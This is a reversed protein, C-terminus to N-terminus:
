FPKKDSAARRPIYFTFPVGGGPEHYFNQDAPRAKQPVSLQPSCQSGQASVHEAQATEASAEPVRPLSSSTLESEHVVDLFTSLGPYLASRM